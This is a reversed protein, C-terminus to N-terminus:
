LLTLFTAAEDAHFTRITDQYSRLIREIDQTACNGRRIWIVKPPAGLVFSRQHFDSDKSTILLQHAKAYEWVVADAAAALGVDRVHVSEPFVDALRDVLRHSLNQDFLLRPSATPLAL